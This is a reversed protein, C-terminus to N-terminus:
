RWFCTSNKQLMPEDVTAVTIELSAYGVSKDFAVTVMLLGLYGNLSAWIATSNMKKNTQKAPNM